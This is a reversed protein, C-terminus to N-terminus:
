TKIWTLADQFETSTYTAVQGDLFYAGIKTVWQVWQQDCVVAIKEFDHRHKIGFVADDWVAGLEWGTFEEGLYFLVKIKGFRDIRQKLQPIFVDEYDRHTLKETAKIVLTKDESEPMIEIM